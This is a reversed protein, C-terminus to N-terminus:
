PEILCKEFCLNNIYELVEFPLADFDKQLYGTAYAICEMRTYQVKSEAISHQLSIKLDEIKAKKQALTLKTKRM